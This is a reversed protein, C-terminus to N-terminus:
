CKRPLKKWRSPKPPLSKRRRMSDALSSPLMWCSGTRRSKEPNANMAKQALDFAREGQGAALETAGLLTSASALISLLRSEKTTGIREVCEKWKASAEETRNSRDLMVGTWYLSIPDNPFDRKLEAVTEEWQRIQKDSVFRRSTLANARDDLEHLRDSSPSAMAVFFGLIAGTSSFLSTM